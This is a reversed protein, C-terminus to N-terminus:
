ADMIVNQKSKELDADTVLGVQRAVAQATALCDGTLMRVTIRPDEAPGIAHALASKAKPRVKDELGLAGVIKIGLGAGMEPDSQILCSALVENLSNDPRAAVYEGWKAAEIEAHAFAIVRLPSSAMKEVEEIFLGKNTADLNLLDNGPGCIFQALPLVAEPAGKIHINIFGDGEDVACATYFYGPQSSRMPVHAIVRNIDYRRNIETHIPVDANQLFKLLGVETGDGVPVFKTEAMQVYASNNYVIGEQILKITNHQLECNLITDPRANQKTVGELHFAKVKMKGTTLINSKGIIM